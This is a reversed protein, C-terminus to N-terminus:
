LWGLGPRGAAVVTTQRDKWWSVEPWVQALSTNGQFQRGAGPGASLPWGPLVPQTWVSGAPVVTKEMGVGRRGLAQSGSM